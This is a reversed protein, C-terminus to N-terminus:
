RSPDIAAGQPRTFNGLQRDHAYATWHRYRVQFLDTYLVHHDGAIGGNAQVARPCRLLLGAGPRPSKRNVPAVDTASTPTIRGSNVRFKRLGRTHQPSLTVFDPEHRYTGLVHPGAQLKGAVAAGLFARQDTREGVM